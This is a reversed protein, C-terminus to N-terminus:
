GIAVHMCHTIYLEACYILVPHTNCMHVNRLHHMINVCLTTNILLYAGTTHYIDVCTVGLWVWGVSGHM